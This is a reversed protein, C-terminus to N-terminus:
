PWRTNRPKTNDPPEARWASLDRGLLDELLRIDENFVESVQRRFEPRLPPRSRAEINVRNIARMIGIRRIGTLRKFTKWYPALRLRLWIQFQALRPSKFQTGENIRPFDLRGDDPIGLFDLLRLYESRPNSVFDDFLIFCVQDRPFVSLVRKVQEGLKGATLYRSGEPLNNDTSATSKRTIEMDWACEFDAVLESGCRRREAHLAYVLEVPNRLMVLLKSEEFLARIAPVAVKSRLYSPTAEGVVSHSADAGDFLTLYDALSKYDSPGIDFSFFRPEKPVSMFVNPHSRIYESMATTGCKPAGIIFFNPKHTM